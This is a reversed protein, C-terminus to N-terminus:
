FRNKNLRKSFFEKWRVNVDKLYRLNPDKFLSNKDYVYEEEFSIILVKEISCAKKIFMEYGERTLGCYVICSVKLETLPNREFIQNLLADDFSQFYHLFLEELHQCNSLLFLLSEKDEEEYLACLKLTKLLLNRSAESSNKVFTSGIIQLSKQLLAVFDPVFEDECERFDIKLLTLQKLFRLVEYGDKQHVHIILEQVLPCFNVASRM